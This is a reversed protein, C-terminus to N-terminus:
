RCVEKVVTLARYSDNKLYDTIICAKSLESFSVSATKDFKSHDALVYAVYSKQVAIRKVCAEEIDHTTFGGEPSIGNTGMFSKTFNYNKLMEVCTVGVLAETTLKVEGGALYVKFGKKALLRAHNLGNTVFTASKEELYGIMKETTTGADIFVLDNSRITQAAYVAIKDKEDSFLKKKDSVNPETLIMQTELKLAGGHVKKLSKNRDLFALDRRITSESTGLKEVLETVSVAGKKEIADLILAHRKETLM